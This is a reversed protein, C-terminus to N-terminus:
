RTSVHMASSPATHQVAALRREFIIFVGAGAWGSCGLAGFCVGNNLVRRTGMRRKAGRVM